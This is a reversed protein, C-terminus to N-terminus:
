VLYFNTKGKGKPMEQMVHKQNTKWVGFHASNM